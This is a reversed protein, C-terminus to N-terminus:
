RPLLRSQKGKVGELVVEQNAPLTMKGLHKGDYRLSEVAEVPEILVNDGAALTMRRPLTMLHDWEGTVKGANVNCIM